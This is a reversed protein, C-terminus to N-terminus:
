SGLGPMDHDSDRFNMEDTDIERCKRKCGIVCAMVKGQFRLKLFFYTELACVSLEGGKGGPISPAIEVHAESPPFPGM